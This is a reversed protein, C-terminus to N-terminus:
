RFMHPELLCSVNVQCCEVPVPCNFIVRNVDEPLACLVCNGKYPGHCKKIQQAAPLCDKTLQWLFIHVKLPVTIKWIDKAHAVMSGQQM